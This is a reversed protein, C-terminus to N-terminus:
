IASSFIQNLYDLFKKRESDGDSKAHKGQNYFDAIDFIRDHLRQLQKKLGETMKFHNDVPHAELWETFEMLQYASPDGKDSHIKDKIKPPCNSTSIAFVHILAVDLSRMYLGLLTYEALYPDSKNGVAEKITVIAQNYTPLGVIRMDLSKKIDLVQEDWQEIGKASCYSGIIKSRLDGPLTLFINPKVLVVPNDGFESAATKAEMLFHTERYFTNYIKSAPTREFYKIVGDLGFKIKFEDSAM